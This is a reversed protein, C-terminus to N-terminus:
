GETRGSKVYLDMARPPHIWSAMMASGTKGKTVWYVVAFDKNNNLLPFPRLKQDPSGKKATEIGEKTAEM